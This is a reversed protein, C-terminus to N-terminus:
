AWKSADQRIYMALAARTNGNVMLRSRYRHAPLCVAKLRTLARKVSLMGEAAFPKLKSFAERRWVCPFPMPDAPNIDYYTAALEKRGSIASRLKDLHYTRLAVQDVAVVSVLPHVSSSLATIVGSIAANEKASSLTSDAVIRVPGTIKDSLMAELEAWYLGAQAENKVIILIENHSAGLIRCSRCVLSEEGCPRYLGKDTGLRTSRGGCLIALSAYESSIGGRSKQM